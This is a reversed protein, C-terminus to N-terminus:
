SEAITIALVSIVSFLNLSSSGHPPPYVHSTVITPAQADADDLNQSIKQVELQLNTLKESLQKYFTQGEDCKLLLDGFTDNSRVLSEIEEDRRFFLFCVANNPM